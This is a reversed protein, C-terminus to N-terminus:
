GGVDYVLVVGVELGFDEEDPAGAAEDADGEDPEEDVLGLAQREFLDILQITNHALRPLALLKPRRQMKRLHILRGPSLTKRLNRRLLLPLPTHRM